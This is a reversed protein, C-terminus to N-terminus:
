SWTSAPRRARRSSSRRRRRARRTSRPRTSSSSSRATRRASATRARAELGGRRAGPEGQRRQVGVEHEQSRFARPSNLFNGTAVGTRGYIHDQMSKRSRGAPWRRRAGGPRHAVPAQDEHELARRRGRDVSRHHQAPHARHQRRRRDRRPGQRGAGPADPDRGRGAPELRLRVRRDADGRAGGVGCRRRGEDRDHRLVAPEAHPLEPQARRAGHRRAQLRRVPVPRHRGAQPQDACRAVERGQVGRVPAEPHDHRAHRVFADAWFPTPKEFLVRVTHSDVKEVKIDKYAASRRRPPPRTRPTSGTSSSTTPPSRAATTGSCARSSSGPSRNATARRPRREAREPDRGRAGAGPQRRTGPRRAARLLHALRGPGQHRRRLPSQAADRGAM